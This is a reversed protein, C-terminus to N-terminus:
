RIPLNRLYRLMWNARLAHYPSGGRSNKAQSDQGLEHLLMTLNDANRLAWWAALLSRKVRRLM